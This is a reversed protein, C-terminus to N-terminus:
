RVARESVKVARFRVPWLIPTWGDSFEYVGDKCEIYSGARKGDGSFYQVLANADMVIPRSMPFPAVIVTNEITAELGTAEDYATESFREVHAVVGHTVIIAGVVAISFVVALLPFLWLINIRKNKRALIIIAGPGAVAVFLALIAIIFIFPTDSSHSLVAGHAKVDCGIPSGDGSIALRRFGAEVIDAFRNWDAIKEGPFWMQGFALKEPRNSSVTQGPDSGVVIASGGAAVYKLLADRVDDGLSVYEAVSLMVVDYSALEKWDTWGSVSSNDVSLPYMRSRNKMQLIQEIDRESKGSRRLMVVEYEDRMTKSIEGQISPSALICPTAEAFSKVSQYNWANEDSPAVSVNKDAGDSFVWSGGDRRSIVFFDSRVCHPVYIKWTSTQGPEVDMHSRLTLIKHQVVAGLMGYGWGNRMPISVTVHRKGDTPNRVTLEIARNGHFFTDAASKRRCLANDTEDSLTRYIPADEPIGIEVGGPLTLTAQSQACAAFAAMAFTVASFITQFKM